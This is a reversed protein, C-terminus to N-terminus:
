SFETFTRLNPDFRGIQCGADETFWLAGDPGTTIGEPRSNATPVPFENTVRGSKPAIRGIKNGSSETFWLAGAPGTAPLYPQSGPSPLVYENFSLNRGVLEVAASLLAVRRYFVRTAIGACSCRGFGREDVGQDPPLRWSEPRRARRPRAVPGIGRASRGAR